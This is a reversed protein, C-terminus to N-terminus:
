KAAALRVGPVAGRIPARPTVDHSLLRHNGVFYTHNDAIELNFTPQEDSETLEVVVTPGETWRFEGCFARMEKRPGTIGRSLPLTDAAPQPSHLLRHVAMKALICRKAVTLVGFYM